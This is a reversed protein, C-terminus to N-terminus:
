ENDGVKSKQLLGLEMAYNLETACDINLKSNLKEINAVTQILKEEGLNKM